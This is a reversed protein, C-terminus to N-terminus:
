YSIDIEGNRTTLTLTLNGEGGQTYGTLQTKKDTTAIMPITNHKIQGNWTSADVKFLTDGPLTVQIRGNWTDAKLTGAIQLTDVEIRGNRTILTANNTEYSGIAEVDGNYTEMNFRTM